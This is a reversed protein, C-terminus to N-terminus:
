FNGARFHPQGLNTQFHSVRQTRAIGFYSIAIGILIGHGYTAWYPIYFAFFTAFVALFYPAWRKDATKLGKVGSKWLQYFIYLTALLGILGGRYLIHILHNHPVMDFSTPGYETVVDVPNFGSGYPKGMLYTAPDKSNAWKTLLDEWHGIRSVMTGEETSVAQNASNAISELVGNGKGPLAFFIVLPVIMLAVGVTTQFGKKKRQLIWFLCAVGIFLSVWVSRHQLVVVTLLLMPLLLRQFLSLKGTVMKFFLILFGIAIVLTPGSGIVRFRVGTADLAMIQQAYVPDIASGIWRYYVLLCLSISCVIWANIVRNIMPETWKVSCFYVVAVWLYFHDRYDVGAATGFTRLGWVVLILQVIGIIWWARPVTKPSVLLSLRILCSISLIVFFIDEPYLWIGYNFAMPIASADLLILGFILWAAYVPKAALWASASALFLFVIIASFVALIIDTSM